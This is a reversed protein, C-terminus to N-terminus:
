KCGYGDVKSLGIPVAAKADAISNAHGHVFFLCFATVHNDVFSAILLRLHAGAIGSSEFLVFGVEATQGAVILRHDPTGERSMDTPNFPQGPEAIPMPAPVVLARM